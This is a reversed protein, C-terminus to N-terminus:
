SGGDVTINVLKEVSIVYICVIPHLLFLEAVM